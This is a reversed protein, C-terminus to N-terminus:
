LFILVGTALHLHVHQRNRGPVGIPQLESVLDNRREIQGPIEDVIETDILPADGKIQRVHGAMACRRCEDGHQQLEHSGTQEIFQPAIATKGLELRRFDEAMDVAAQDIALQALM